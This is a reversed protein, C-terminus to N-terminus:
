LVEFSGDTYVIIGKGEQKSLMHIQQVTGSLGNEYLTIWSDKGAKLVQIKKSVVVNGQGDNTWGGFLYSNWKYQILLGSDTPVVLDPGKEWKWDKPKRKLDFSFTEALFSCDLHSFDKVPVAETVFHHDMQM